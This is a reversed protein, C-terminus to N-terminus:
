YEPLLDINMMNIFDGFMYKHTTGSQSYLIYARQGSMVRKVRSTIDQFCDTYGKDLIVCNAIVKSHIFRIYNM